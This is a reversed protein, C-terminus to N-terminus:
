EKLYDFVVKTVIVSVIIDISYHSRTSIIMISYILLLMSILFMNTFIKYEYAFLVALFLVAFHGSFIKDYCHGTMANDITYKSDDCNKSKPLITIHIFILRIIFICILIIYYDLIYKSNWNSKWFFLLPIAASVIDCMKILIKNDSMDPIYKMGIDFVKQTTKGRKIRSDYYTKGISHVNYSLTGIIILIMHMVIVIPIIETIESDKNM